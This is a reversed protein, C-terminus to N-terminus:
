NSSLFHATIRAVIDVCFADVFVGYITVAVDLRPLIVGFQGLGLILVGYLGLFFILRFLMRHFFFTYFLSELFKVFAQLSDCFLVILLLFDFNIGMQDTVLLLTLFDGQHQLHLVSSHCFDFLKLLKLNSCLMTLLSCWFSDCLCDFAHSHLVLGDDSICVILLYLPFV